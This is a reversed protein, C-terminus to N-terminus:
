IEEEMSNFLEQDDIIQPLRTSIEIPQFGWEKLSINLIKNKYLEGTDIMSKPAAVYSTPMILDRKIMEKDAEIIVYSDKEMIKCDVAGSVDWIHTFGIEKWEEKTFQEQYKYDIIYKVGKIKSFIEKTEEKNGNSIIGNFIISDESSITKNINDIVMQNYKSISLKQERAAANDFFRADAAIFSLVEDEKM